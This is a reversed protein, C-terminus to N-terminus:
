YVGRPPHAQREAGRKYSKVIRKGFHDYLYDLNKNHLAKVIKKIHPIIHYIHFYPKRCLTEPLKAFRPLHPVDSIECTRKVLFIRDSATQDACVIYAFRYARPESETTAGQADAKPVAIKTDKLLGWLFSSICMVRNVFAQMNSLPRRTWLSATRIS